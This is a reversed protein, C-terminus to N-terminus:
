RWWRRRESKWSAADYEVLPEGGDGGSADYEYSDHPQAASEVEEYADAGFSLRLVGGREGAQGVQREMEVLVEDATMERGEYSYRKVLFARSLSEKLGM